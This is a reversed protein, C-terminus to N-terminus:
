LVSWMFEERWSLTQVAMERAEPQMISMDVRHGEPGGHGLHDELVAPAAAVMRELLRKPVEVISRM